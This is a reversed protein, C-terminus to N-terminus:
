VSMASGGPHDFALTQGRDCALLTYRPLRDPLM